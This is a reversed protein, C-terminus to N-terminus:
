NKNIAKIMSQTSDRVFRRQLRRLYYVACRSLWQSPRSFSYIDYYVRDNQPHWELLFREEGCIMNGQLTGYAFGFLQVGEQNEDLVYVIRNANPWWLGFVDGMITMNAGVECSISHPLCLHLWDLDFMRWQSFAHCADLFVKEGGGLETRYHSHRYHGPFDDPMPFAKRSAGIEQYNFSKARAADCIADLTQAKPKQM